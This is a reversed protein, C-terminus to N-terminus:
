VTQLGKNLAGGPRMHKGLVQTVQAEVARSIVKGMQSANEREGPAGSQVNVTVNTVVSPGGGGASTVWKKFRKAEPKRSTLILSYLGSENIITVTRKQQVGKSSTDTIGVDAKEDDDLRAAADRSNAIGLVSCVDLLVFWPTGDKDRVTRMESKEFQFPIINHTQMIEGKEHQASV